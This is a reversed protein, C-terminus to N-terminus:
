VVFRITLRDAERKVTDGELLGGIVIERAVRPPAIVVPATDEVPPLTQGTVLQFVVYFSHHGITNGDDEDLHDTSLGFVIDSPTDGKISIAYKNGRYMPVNSAPENAPKDAIAETAYPSAGISVKFKAGNVRHGAVDLIDLFINHNGRNEAGSLHHVGICRWRLGTTKADRVILGYTGSPMPRRTAALFKANYYLHKFV